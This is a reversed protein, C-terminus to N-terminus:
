SYVDMGKNKFVIRQTYRTITTLQKGVAIPNKLVANTNLLGDLVRANIGSDIIAPSLVNNARVFNACLVQYGDIGKVLKSGAGKATNETRLTDMLAKAHSAKGTQGNTSNLNFFTGGSFQVLYGSIDEMTGTNNWKVDDYYGDKANVNYPLQFVSVVNNNAGGPGPAYRAYRASRTGGPLPRVDLIFSNSSVPNQNFAERTGIPVFSQVCM